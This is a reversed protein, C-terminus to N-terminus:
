KCSKDKTIKNLRKNIILTLMNIENQINLYRKILDNQMVEKKLRLFEEKTNYREYLKKADEFNRLLRKVNSNNNIEKKIEDLNRKLTSSEIEDILKYVENKM